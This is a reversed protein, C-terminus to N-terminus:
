TEEELYKLELAAMKAKAEPTDDDHGALHLLGHIVYREIEEQLAAGFEAHREAATEVDVYVEGEIGADTEDVLFSLVDTDHDHNLFLRNLERVRAHGTLIIGVESWLVGEASLVAAAIREIRAEDVGVPDIGYEVSVVVTSM